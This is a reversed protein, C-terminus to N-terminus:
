TKTVAQQDGGGQHGGPEELGGALGCKGRPSEWQGGLDPQHCGHRSTPWTCFGVARDYVTAEVGSNLSDGPDFGAAVQGKLEGVSEQIRQEPETEEQKEEPISCLSGTQIEQNWVYQRGFM